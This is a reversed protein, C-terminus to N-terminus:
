AQRAHRNRFRRPPTRIRDGCRHDANRDGTTGEAETLTFGSGVVSGEGLQRIAGLTVGKRNAFEGDRYEGRATASWRDKRYAAGLTFATFDEFLTNGGPGFQGGSAVPQDVNM